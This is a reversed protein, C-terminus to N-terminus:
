EQTLLEIHKTAVAIQRSMSKIVEMSNKPNMALYNHIDQEPIQLIVTDENAVVTYPNPNGSLASYEGFCHGEGCISVLYERDTGYNMFRTVSGQLVRYLCSNSTGQELVVEDTAFNMMTRAQIRYSQEIAHILNVVFENYIVPVGHAKGREVVYGNISDVETLRANMVDQSMSSFGSGVQECTKRLQRLVEDPDFSIGEAGAIDIAERILKEPYFWSYDNDILFGIPAKTIATFTNISLNVFLKSWIIRRIDDSVITELGAENFVDAVLSLETRSVDGGIYTAGNGSHRVMGNGLNVSNHRTTGLIIHDMSIFESLIQDNGGGNQLTMVLTNDRIMAMNSEISARTDSTKVIIIVLDM